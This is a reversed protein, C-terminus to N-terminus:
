EKKLVLYRRGGNSWVYLLVSDKEVQRSVKIADAASGVPQRDIELIVDGQRLGAEAAPTGPDVATVLAGALDSSAGIQRRSQSDLDEVHIGNLVDPLGGKGTDSSGGALETGPQEKLTVSVDLPEGARMIKLQVQSGPAERAVMLRLHRVDDVQKGAFEVIVDGQKLGAQEAASDPVVEGVLAGKTDTIGFAEALEPTIDQIQVGLFGRIVRGDRLLREIVTRVLNSPVAFGIGQNGGTRSLIATNIGVLRGEADVLAGGSNGPNIPADTQIFDEYDVIGMNGRGIASVIGTTVTQGVGFPNGIAAVFDGVELTDSDTVTIAPLDDAHVKLVAIDTKPDSGVVEAVYEKKEGVLAVRIEEAGEIVHNNTVLYGDTTLIVGSGLSKEKRTLPQRNPFSEPDGFFHRFFPDQFFPMLEMNASSRLVKTSFVNVVSPAVKKVMPAISTAAKTEPSIAKADIAVPAKSKDNGSGFPWWDEAHGIYVAGYAFVGAIVLAMMVNIPRSFRKM